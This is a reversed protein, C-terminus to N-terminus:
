LSFLSIIFAVIVLVSAVTHKRRCIRIANEMDRRDERPVNSEHILSQLHKYLLRGYKNSLLGFKYVSIKVINKLLDRDLDSIPMIKKQIFSLYAMRIDSKELGKLKEMSKQIASLVYEDYGLMLDNWISKLRLFGVNYSSASNMNDMIDDPITSGSRQVTNWEDIIMPVCQLSRVERAINEVTMDGKLFPCHYNEPQLYFTLLGAVQEQSKGKLSELVLELTKMSDSMRGRQRYFDLCSLLYGNTISAVLKREMETVPQRKLVKGAFLLLNEITILHGGFAFPVEHGFHQTFHFLKEDPDKTGSTVEDMDVIADFENNSELWQKVYGRLLFERGKKWSQEDKLFAAALDTMSQYQRDMFKLPKLAMGTGSPTQAGLATEFYQPIGREGSLWRAVQEYNWRKKPDRTLLGQLLEKQGAEINDPIPAPKTLVWEMIVSSDLGKFPHEGAVIELLIMGMGWWDTHQGMVGSYSEPSQYMPTGRVKTRKRSMDADLTTAIGFDILVLDLRDGSRLLVNSPKLDLHLLNNKHLINLADALERAVDNFFTARQVGTLLSRDAMLTQLSGSTVYEQIEYWRGSAPDFDVDFLRIFEHPHSEGLAKIALLIDKKPEIGYRYQKLIYQRANKEVIFIDAESGKTPLQRVIHYGQFNAGVSADGPGATTQGERLTAAAGREECRTVDRNERVTSNQEERVIEPDQM